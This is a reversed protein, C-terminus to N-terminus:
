HGKREQLMLKLLEKVDTEITSLRRDNREGVERLALATESKTAYVEPIKEALKELKQHTEKMEARIGNVIWAVVGAIVGGLNGIWPGIHELLRLFSPDVDHV